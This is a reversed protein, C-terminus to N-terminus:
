CGGDVGPQRVVEWRGEEFAQVDADRSEEVGERGAVGDVRGEQEQGRIRERGLGPWGKERGERWRM